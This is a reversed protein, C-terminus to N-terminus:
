AIEATTFEIGGIRGAVANYIWAGLLTFLFGFVAYLIPMTLILIWSISSHSLWAPVLSLVVMPLSIVLYMVAMVKATQLKSVHVIQKKM